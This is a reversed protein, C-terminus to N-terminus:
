GLPPKSSSCAGRGDAKSSARFAQGVPGLCSVLPRCGVPPLLCGHTVSQVVAKLEESKIHVAGQDVTQGGDNVGTDFGKGVRGKLGRRRILHPLNNAQRKLQANLMPCRARAPVVNKIQGLSVAHGEPPLARPAIDVLTGVLVHHVRQLAQGMVLGEHGHHRALIPATQVAHQRVVIEPM